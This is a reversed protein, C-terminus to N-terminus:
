PRRVGSRPNRMLAIMERVAAELGVLAARSVISHGINLEEIEPIAAIGDINRYTLGHGAYVTLGLKKAARAATAVKDLQAQWHDTGDKWADAYKGTNIEIKPARLKHCQRIQELDPDVFISVDIRADLLQAVTKEVNGAHLVVDLGGETTVEERREPVLTVQHPKITQAIRVMETTSAMEVNLHTTVTRRLLEVDRDQIHRRDGRLHVTIGQAGALECLVAAAVPDPEDTKRAERITAIHDINVALRM